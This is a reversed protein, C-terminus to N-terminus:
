PEAATAFSQLELTGRVWIDRATRAFRGAVESEQM